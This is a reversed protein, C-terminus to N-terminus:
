TEEAVQWGQRSLADILEQIHPRGTTELTVEVMVEGLGAKSFARNHHIEVVNARQEAIQTTLRALM